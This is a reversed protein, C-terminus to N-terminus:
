IRSNRQRGDPIQSPKRMLLYSIGGIVGCLAFCWLPFEYSSTKDFWWGAFIPAFLVGPTAGFQTLGRLRGYSKRGFYDGITAWNNSGGTESIAFMILFIYMTLNSTPAIVLVLMAASGSMTTTALVINKPFKDALWGFCLYFPVVLFLSLGLYISALGQDVEKWILIPIFHVMFGGKSTLRCISGVFLLWYSVTHFAGSLDYGTVIYGPITPEETISKRSVDSGDPLLGQTEPTNQIWLTMPTVLLLISVGCVMAATDWGEKLILFALGPVLIAPIISSIAQYFAMAFARKADFWNNVLASTANSFALVSGVTILTLYIVSFTFINVSQGLLLFGVGVMTSGVFFIPKPGFRDILWGAVAGFPGEGARALSFVISGGIRGIGFADSVPLLFVMYGKNVATSNLGHAMGALVVM